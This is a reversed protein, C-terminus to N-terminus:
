RIPRPPREPRRPRRRRPGGGGPVGRPRGPPARRPVPRPCPGLHPRGPRRRRATSPEGVVTRDRIESLVTKLYEVHPTEDARIYGVLRAAEGDGAVLEPDDLLEEAWAFTHFASIEILLLRIMREVLMELDVSVDDPWLRQPPAQAMQGIGMAEAHARDRGRGAPARLRRRPRRVVDAQPRGRSRRRGPRLRGRRPRPGRLARTGLHALATGETDEVFTRRADPVPSLRLMAGFGEVTGIRTLSNIIPEPLGSEILFRAQAVNPYHSPWTELPVDMLTTGFTARHNAQWAEIAPTRHLTRPSVYAGDADFGGHCLVGGAILPEEYPHSALLEAEDYTLQVHNGGEVDVGLTYEHTYLRM